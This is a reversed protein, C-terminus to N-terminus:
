EKKVRNKKSYTKKYRKWCKYCVIVVIIFITVITVFFINKHFIFLMHVLYNFSPENGIITEYGFSHLLLRNVAVDESININIFPVFFEPFSNNVDEFSNIIINLFRVRKKDLEKEFPESYLYDSHSFFDLIAIRLAQKIDALSLSLLLSSPSIPLFSPFSPV